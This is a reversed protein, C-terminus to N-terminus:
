LDAPLINHDIHCEKGRFDNEREARATKRIVWGNWFDFVHDYRM